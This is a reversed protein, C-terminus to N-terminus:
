TSCLRGAQLGTYNRQDGNVDVARVAARVVILPLPRAASTRDTIELVIEINLTPTAIRSHNKKELLLRCVLDSRSQLESTHEESRSCYGTFASEAMGFCASSVTVPLPMSPTGPMAARVKAATCWSPIETDSMVWAEDSCEIQKLTGSSLACRARRLRSCVNWRSIARCSISPTSARVPRAVRTTTPSPMASVGPM